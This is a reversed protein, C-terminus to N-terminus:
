RRRRSRQRKPRAKKSKASIPEPPVSPRRGVVGFALIEITLDGGLITSRAGLSRPRAISMEGIENAPVAGPSLAVGPPRSLNIFGGRSCEGIGGVKLAIVLAIILVIGV